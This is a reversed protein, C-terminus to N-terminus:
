DVDDHRSEEMLMIASVHFVPQLMQEGEFRRFGPAKSQQEHDNVKSLAHGGQGNLDDRDTELILSQIGVVNGSEKQQRRNGPKELGQISQDRIKQRQEALM